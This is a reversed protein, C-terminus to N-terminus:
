AAWRAAALGAVCKTLAADMTLPHKEYNLAFWRREADPVHGIPDTPNIKRWRENVNHVGSSFFDFGTMYVHAPELSLVDLLASFGTTPVHGGLLHFHALFEDVTPVYTPCFWWARRRQYLMRFDVGAMKGHRRHWPSEIFQADPCKCMCLKVGDRQLEIPTKRISSGYFSYHVDTRYGTAPFLKYNNVRVVVDHSDVLGPANGLSGPGSGVLAVTKGKFTALVHERDIFKM